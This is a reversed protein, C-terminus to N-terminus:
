SKPGASAGLQHAWGSLGPVLGSLDVSADDIHYTEMYTRIAVGPHVVCGDKLCAM